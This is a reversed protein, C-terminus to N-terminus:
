ITRRRTCIKRSNKIKRSCERSLYQDATEWGALDEDIGQKALEPNHYILGKLEETVTDYDKGCLKM